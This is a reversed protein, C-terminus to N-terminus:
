VSIPPASTAKMEKRWRDATADHGKGSGAKGCSGHLVAPAEVCQGHTGRAREAGKFPARGRRCGAFHRRAFEAAHGATPSAVAFLEARPVQKLAEAHIASIFQSGVLGVRVPTM